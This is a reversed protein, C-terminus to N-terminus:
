KFIKKTVWHSLYASGIGVLAGTAVDSPYHRGLRMRSYGVSAAWAYAPVTIYWKKYELALTTATAFALTTHGSPFSKGESYTYTNVKDPYTQNPRPRNVLTKVGGSVALCIGISLASEFGNKMAVKDKYIVGYALSGMTITPSAWYVSNSTQLWYKQGGPNTANFKRLLDIDMNQSKVQSCALTCMGLCVVIRKM